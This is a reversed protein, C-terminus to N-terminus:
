LDIFYFSGVQTLNLNLEQLLLARQEVTIQENTDNIGSFVCEPFNEHALFTYRFYHLKWYKM